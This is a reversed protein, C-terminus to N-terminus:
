PTSVSFPTLHSEIAMRQPELWEPLALRQGLREADEDVAMGPGRTAIELVHGDPDRFYISRFYKREMVPTVELGQSRLRAQWDRQTRDDATEFAVHHTLGVGIRSHAASGATAMAVVIPAAAGFDGGGWHETAIGDPTSGSELTRLGLTGTYFERSRGIDSVRVAVHDIAEIRLAGGGGTESEPAVIELLLGDPDPFALASTSAEAFPQSVPVGGKALRDRWAPLDGASAARLAIHDTAGIGRRGEAVGPWEFFTILSGPTGIRDGFYLHYTEPWDFNVTKKVLHMGLLNTYFEATRAANACVATVHHLGTVNM